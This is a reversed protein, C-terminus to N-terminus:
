EGGYYWAEFQSIPIAGKGIRGDDRKWPRPYPKPRPVARKSHASAYLHSLANVLDYLDALMANTQYADRYAADEAHLARWTYSGRDQAIHRALAAVNRWGFAHCRDLPVGLVAM